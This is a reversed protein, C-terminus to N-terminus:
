QSAGLRVLGLQQLMGLDDRISSHEAIKGDVMRFLHFHKATWQKGTPAGGALLSPISQDRADPPPAWAKGTHTATATLYAIVKDDFAVQQELVYTFDPFSKFIAGMILRWGQPGAPAKPAAHNVYDETLFTSGKAVDHTNFVEWYERIRADNHRTVDTATDM